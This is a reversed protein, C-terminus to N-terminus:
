ARELRRNWGDENRIRCTDGEPDIIWFARRPKPDPLTAYIAGLDRVRPAGGESVVDGNFRLVFTGGNSARCQAVIAEPKPMDDEPPPAFVAECQARTLSRAPPWALEVHVHDTHPSSGTYHRWGEDRRPVDWVERYWIVRQIGLDPAHQVLWRSLHDGVAKHASAVGFDLARGEAHVSKGSGGSNDRCVYIGLNSVQWHARVFDMLVVAGPQARGLCRNGVPDYLYGYTVDAGLTEDVLALWGDAQGLLRDHRETATERRSMRDRKRGAPDSWRFRITRM